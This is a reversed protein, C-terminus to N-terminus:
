MSAGHVDRRFHHRVQAGFRADSHHLALLREDLGLAIELRGARDKALLAERRGRALGTAHGALAEHHRVHRDLSGDQDLDIALGVEDGSRLSKALERLLQGVADRSVVSEADRARSIRGLDCLKGPWAALGHLVRDQLENRRQLLVDLDAAECAPCLPGALLERAVNVAVPADPHEDPQRAAVFPRSRAMCM